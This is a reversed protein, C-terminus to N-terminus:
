IAQATPFFIPFIKIIHTHTHIHTTYTPTHTDEGTMKNLKKNGANVPSAARIAEGEGAHVHKKMLSFLM